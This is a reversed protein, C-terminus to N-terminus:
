NELIVVKRSVEKTVQLQLPATDRFKDTRPFLFLREITFSPIPSVAYKFSPVSPCVQLLKNYFRSINYNKFVRGASLKEFNM